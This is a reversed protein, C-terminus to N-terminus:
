FAHLPWIINIFEEGRRELIKIKRKRVGREGAGRRDPLRRAPPPRSFQAWDSGIKTMPGVSVGSTELGDGAEEAAGDVLM